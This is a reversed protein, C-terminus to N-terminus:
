KPSGLFYYFLDSLIQQHEKLDAIAEVAQSTCLALSHAVCHVNVMHLNSRLLIGICSKNRGTMVAVGDSRITQKTLPVDLELMVEQVSKM